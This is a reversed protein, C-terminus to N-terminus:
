PVNVFYGSISTVCLRDASVPAFCEYYVESSPDAYLRVAHTGNWFSDTSDQGVSNVGIYYHTLVGNTTVFIHPAVGSGSLRIRGRFAITEIVLRKGAPVTALLANNISADAGGAFPQKDPNDVDKTPVPNAPTNDVTVSSPQQAAIADLSLAALLILASSFMVGAVTLVKKIKIM